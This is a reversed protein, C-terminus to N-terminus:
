KVFEVPFKDTVLDREEADEAAYGLIVAGCPLFGEPVKLERCIEANKRIAKINGRIYCSGLGIDSATILMNEIICSANCMALEVDRADGSVVIMTPAGYLPHLSADGFFKAGEADIKALLERNQVVSLSVSDYRSMGIPAANAGQLIIDLEKDTIQGDKYAKCSCRKAIAERTKM